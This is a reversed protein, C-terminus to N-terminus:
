LYRLWDHRDPRTGRQIGQLEDFLRQALEGAEGRGLELTKDRLGLKGVPSIVAGTGTGFMELLKGGEHAEIVEDISIRRETV